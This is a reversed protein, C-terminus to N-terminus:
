SGVSGRVKAGIHELYTSGPLMGPNVARLKPVLRPAVLLGTLLGLSKHRFMWTGKNQKDAQQFALVSGVCAMMTPASLWHMRSVVKGYTLGYQSMYETGAAASTCMKRVIHNQMM